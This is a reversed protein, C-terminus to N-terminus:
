NRKIIFVTKDDICDPEGNERFRDDNRLAYDLIANCIEKAPQSKHEEIIQEIEQRGQADDGDYVGDTYLFIIDGPSMLTIEDMDFATM